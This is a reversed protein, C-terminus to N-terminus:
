KPDHADTVLELLTRYNALEAHLRSPPLTPGDKILTTASTQFAEALRADRRALFAFYRTVGSQGAANGFPQRALDALQGRVFDSVMHGDQGTLRLLRANTAIAESKSQEPSNDRDPLIPGFRVAGRWALVGTIILLIAWLADFPPSFLRAIDSYDRTYDRRQDRDEDISLLLDPSMDIYVPKDGPPELLAILDLVATGNDGIGLGHNNILDPDSLLFVPHDTTEQHCAAVLVGSGFTVIKTCAKPLSEPAFTRPIFLSAWGETVMDNPGLRLRLGKFGLQEFLTDFRDVPILTQEHAVKIKITGQVWKPLVILTPLEELKTRLDNIDIDRLDTQFFLAHEDQPTASDNLIDLDYLPLVRLGFDLVHPSLRPHSRKNAVDHLDLFRQLGNMGIVSNDLRRDNAGSTLAFLGGLGALILLGILILPTNNRM